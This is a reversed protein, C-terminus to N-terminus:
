IQKSSSPSQPLNSIAFHGGHFPQFIDCNKAAIVKKKTTRIKIFLKTNKVMVSSKEFFMEMIPSM